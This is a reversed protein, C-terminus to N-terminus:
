EIETLMETDEYIVSFSKRNATDAYIVSFSKRYQIGFFRKGREGKENIM